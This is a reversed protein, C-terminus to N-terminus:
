VCRGDRGFTTRTSVSLSRSFLPSSGWAVTATWRGSLRTSSLRGGRPTRSTSRGRSILAIPLGFFDSLVLHDFLASPSEGHLFFGTPSSASLRHDRAASPFLLKLPSQTLGLPCLVMSPCIIDNHHICAVAVERRKSHSYTFVLLDSM